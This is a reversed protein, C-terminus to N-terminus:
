LFGSHIDPLYYGMKKQTEHRNGQIEDYRKQSINYYQRAIADPYMMDKAKSIWQSDLDLGLFKSINYLSNDMDSIIDEYRISLFKDKGLVDGHQLCKEVSQLWWSFCEEESPLIDPLNELGGECFMYPLKKPSVKNGVVKRYGTHIAMSKATAVGDRIINIVKVKKPYASLISPLIPGYAHSKDIVYRTNGYLSLYVQEIFDSINAYKPLKFLLDESVKAPDKGITGCISDFHKLKNSDCNHKIINLMDKVVHVKNGLQSLISSIFYNEFGGSIEKHLSLVDRFFHSGCRGTGVILIITKM